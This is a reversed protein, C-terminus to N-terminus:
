HMNRNVHCYTVLDNVTIKNIPKEKALKKFANALKLKTNKNRKDEKRMGKGGFADVYIIGWWFTKSLYRFNVITLFLPSDYLWLSPTIYNFCFFAM